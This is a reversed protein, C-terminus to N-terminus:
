AIAPQLPLHTFEDGKPMKVLLHLESGANQQDRLHQASANQTTIALPSTGMQAEAGTDERAESWSDTEKPQPCLACSQNQGWEAILSCGNGPEDQQGIVWQSQPGWNAGECVDTDLACIDRRSGSFDSSQDKPWRATMYALRPYVFFGCEGWVQTRIETWAFQKRPDWLAQLVTWAWWVGDLGTQRQTLLDPKLFLIGWLASKNKM